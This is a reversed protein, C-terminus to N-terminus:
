ARMQRRTAQPSHPRRMWGFWAAGLVTGPLVLLAWRTLEPLGWAIVLEPIVGTYYASYAAIAAGVLASRRSVGLALAGHAMAWTTLGGLVMVGFIWAAHTAGQLGAHVGTCPEWGDLWFYAFVYGPFALALAFAYPERLLENSGLHPRARVCSPVCGVCETCPEPRRRDLTLQGYMVEVPRIPCAGSCWGALVPRTAGFALALVTVVLCASMTAPGVTNFWLHRTPVGLFLVGWGIGRLIRTGRPSLRTSRAGLTPAVRHQLTSIPCVSVWLNPAALLLMPALPIFLYWLLNLGLQPTLAM